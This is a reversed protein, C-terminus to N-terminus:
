ALPRGKVELSFLALACLTVRYFLPAMTDVQVANSKQPPALVSNSGRSNCMWVACLVKDRM